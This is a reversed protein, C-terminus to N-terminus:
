RGQRTSKRTLTILTVTPPNFIRGHMNGYHPDSGLGPSIYQPIGDPFSLGSILEDEPFWGLEPVYVAGKGPIRWQGGNYHGALILSAYRMAFTEEKSGWVALERIYEATLPTHTLVIQIDEPQFRERLEGIEDLRVLEYELVRRRAADDATLGTAKRSMETLQGQYIEKMRDLDLTYLEEPVFWITGKGRTESVPRDLITVGAARLLDAWETYVSLSGHAWSDLADGDTDGPIYYKPTEAPMLAILDLLPGTEQNEGLMDGTMVVCSYRTSGLATEIAKQRQGLEAGHLDSLHLISYQELDEPLNLVTLNVRELRVRHSVIYNSVLLLCVLLFLLILVANRFGHGRDRRRRGEPAFIYQNQTRRGM